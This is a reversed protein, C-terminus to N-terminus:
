PSNGTLSLALLTRWQELLSELQLCTHMGGIAPSGGMTKSINHAADCIIKAHRVQLSLPSERGFTGILDIFRLVNAKQTSQFLYQPPSRSVVSSNSPYLGFSAIEQSRELDSEIKARTFLIKGSSLEHVTEIVNDYIIHGEIPGEELLLQSTAWEIAENQTCNTAQLRYSHSSSGGQSRYSQRTSCGQPRCRKQALTAEGVSTKKKHERIGEETLSIRGRTKEKVLKILIEIM